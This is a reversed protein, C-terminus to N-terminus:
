SFLMICLLLILYLHTDKGQILLFDCCMGFEFPNLCNCVDCLRPFQYLIEVLNRNRKLNNKSM